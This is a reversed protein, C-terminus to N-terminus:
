CTPAIEFITTSYFSTLLM